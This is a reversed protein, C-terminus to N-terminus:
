EDIITYVLLTFPFFLFVSLTFICDGNERPRRTSAMGVYLIQEGEAGGLICLSPSSFSLAGM